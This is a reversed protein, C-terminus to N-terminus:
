VLGAAAFLAPEDPLAAVSALQWGDGAAARASASIAALRLAARGETGLAAAMLGASRASYALAVEATAAMRRAAADWQLPEAAYVVCEFIRIGAPVAFATAERGRLHLVSALGDNAISEALRAVGGARHCRVDRFGASRAAAATAPGVCYAPLGLVASLGAGALEVAAASTLMVAAVPEAPPRWSRAVLALVPCVVAEHGLGALREATKAAAGQPRCLLVRAV